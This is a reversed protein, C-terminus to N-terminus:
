VRGDCRFHVAQDLAGASGHLPEKLSAATRQRASEGDKRMIIRSKSGPLEVEVRNFGRRHAADLEPREGSTVIRALAATLKPFKATIFQAPEYIM